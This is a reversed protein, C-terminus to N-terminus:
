ANIVAGSCAVEPEFDCTSNCHLTLSLLVPVVFAEKEFKQKHAPEDQNEQIRVPSNRTLLDFFVLIVKWRHQREGYM